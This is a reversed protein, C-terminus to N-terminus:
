YTRVSSFRVAQALELLLLVSLVLVLSRTVVRVTLTPTTAERSHRDDLLLHTIQTQAAQRARRM